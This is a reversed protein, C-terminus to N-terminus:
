GPNTCFVVGQFCMKLLIYESGTFLSHAPPPLLCIEMPAAAVIKRNFLMAGRVTCLMAGEKSHVVCLPRGYVTSSSSSFAGRKKTPEIGLVFAHM